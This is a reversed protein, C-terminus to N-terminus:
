PSQPEPQSETHIGVSGGYALKPVGGAWCPGHGGREALEGEERSPGGSPVVGHNQHLPERGVLSPGVVRSVHAALVLQEAGSVSAGPAEGAHVAGVADRAAPARGGALRAGPAHVAQDSAGVAGLRQQVVVPLREAGGSVLPVAAELLSALRAAAALLRAARRLQLLVLRDEDPLVSLPLGLRGRCHENGLLLVDLLERGHDLGLDRLHHIHGLFLSGRGDRLLPHGLGHVHLLHLAVELALRVLEPLDLRLGGSPEGLQLLVVLLLQPLHLALDVVGLAVQLLGEAVGEGHSGLLLRLELNLGALDLLQLVRVLVLLLGQLRVLSVAGPLELAQLGGHLLALRLDVLNTDVGGDGLGGALVQLHALDLRDLVLDVGLLGVEVGQLILLPLLRWGGDLLHLALEPSHLRLEHRGAEAALLLHDRVQLGLCVPQILGVLVQLNRGGLVLDLLGVLDAGELVLDVAQLRRRGVGGVDARRPALGLTQQLGVGRELLGLGGVGPRLLDDGIGVLLVGRLELAEQRLDRRLLSLAALGGHVVTGGHVALHLGEDLVVLIGVLLRLLVEGLLLGLPKRVIRSLHLGQLPVDLRERLLQLLRGETHGRGQHLDGSVLLRVDMVQGLVDGALGGHQGGLLLLELGGLHLALLGAHVLDSPPQLRCGGRARRPSPM